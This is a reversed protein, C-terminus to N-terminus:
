VNYEIFPVMFYLYSLWGNQQNKIIGKKGGDTDTEAGYSMRVYFPLPKM